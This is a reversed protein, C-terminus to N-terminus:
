IMKIILIDWGDPEGLQCPLQKWDRLERRQKALPYPVTTGQIHRGHRSQVGDAAFTVRQIPTDM